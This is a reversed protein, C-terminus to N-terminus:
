GGLAPVNAGARGDIVPTLHFVGYNLRAPITAVSMAPVGGGSLLLQVPATTAPGASYAGGIELHLVWVTTSPGAISAAGQGGGGTVTGQDFAKFVTSGWICRADARGRSATWVLESSAKACEASDSALRTSDPKLRAERLAQHWQRAAAPVPPAAVIGQGAAANSFCTTAVLAAVISTREAISM